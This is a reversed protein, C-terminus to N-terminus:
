RVCPRIRAGGFQDAVHIAQGNGGARQHCPHAFRASRQLAPGIQDRLIQAVGREDVGVFRAQTNGALQVPKMDSGVVREGPVAQVGLTAHVRDGRMADALDRPRAPARNSPAM